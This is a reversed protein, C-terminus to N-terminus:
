NLSQLNSLKGLVSIDSINNNFLNLSQIAPCLAVFSIDRLGVYPLSITTLLPLKTLVELNEIRWYDLFATYRWNLITGSGGMEIKKLKKLREFEEPLEGSLLNYPGTNKSEVWKRQKYDYVRNSVRLEELEELEFLEKPLATLGCRGIDLKKWGETKAQRILALALKSM